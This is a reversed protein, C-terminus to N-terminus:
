YINEFKKSEQNYYMMNGSSLEFWLGHINLKNKLIMDNIEPFSIINSISNVISLKELSKICDNKNLHNDLIEYAPKIINIWKDLVSETEDIEKSFLQYAHKIGGCSSHGLIILDHINLEKVAYKIAALTEYSINKSEFSPVLNAINRHIFFDGEEAKFIKNPDIRSDCCSIIMAKPNQGEKELLRYSNKKNPFVNDKWDKYRDIFYNPLPM